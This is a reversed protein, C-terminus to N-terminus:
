GSTLLTFTFTSGEGPTSDVWIRGGHAKVIEQGIALGLGSGGSDKETKVQVFKDFIKSQYEWPIGMGDDAVFLSICGHHYNAGVRVEGGSESYRLANAILNTLVWIIKNPDVKVKPLKPTQCKLLNIQKQEAQLTLLSIAKELLFDVEVATFEIEIRGADIKSLDLLDNVLTRLNEVDEQAARLLKEEQFSLKQQAIELLLNITVVIGALPTRLQHSATAVFENRLRNLEQLKTVNQVLLIMGLTKGEDCHMPTVSLQYSKDKRHWAFTLHREQNHDSKVTKPIGKLFDTLERNGAFDPFYKGAAQETGINIIAAGSSNIELINLQGDVIVLGDQISDLLIQQRYKQAVVQQQDSKEKTPWQEILTNILQGLYALEDNNNNSVLDVKQEYDGDTFKAIVSTIQELQKHINSSLFWSLIFSSSLAIVTSFSIFLIQQSKVSQCQSLTLIIWTFILIIPILTLGHALTIKARLKM